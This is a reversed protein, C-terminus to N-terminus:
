EIKTWQNWFINEPHWRNEHHASEKEVPYGIPVINLPILHKPLNTVERVIKIRDTAPYVGTWVAGLDLSEAALLINETAASCDQIWFSEEWGSLFERINGCVIIAAPAEMLMKSNLLMKGLQSLKNKDDIVIFAWPQKNVASPAMMGAKIIDLLIERNIPRDSFHRVSHRNQILSLINNM